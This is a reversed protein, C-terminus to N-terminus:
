EFARQAPAVTKGIGGFLEVHRRAAEVPPLTDFDSSHADFWGLDDQVVGKVNHRVTGYTRRVSLHEQLSRPLTLTEAIEAASMGADPQRVTPDHIFRHADRQKTIFETVRERGGSQGTTSTSL